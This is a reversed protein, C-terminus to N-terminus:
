APRADAGIRGASRAAPLAALLSAGFTLALTTALIPLPTDFPIARGFAESGAVDLAVFAGTIGVVAGIVCGVAALLAAEYVVMAGVFGRSAGVFRLIGFQARRELVLTALLACIGAIAIALALNGLLRAISFSRELVGLTSERLEATTRVDLVFTSLARAIRERVETASVGPKARVVITDPRADHFWAATRAYRVTATGGNNAFDDPVGAVRLAVPGSPTAITFRDGVKVHLRRALPSSVFAPTERADPAASPAAIPANTDDGRLEFKVRDASAVLFSRAPMATAVGAIARVRDLMPSPLATPATLGLDRAAVVVDGRMTQEAWLRTAHGFSSSAITYGLANAVALALAALVLGTRRPSAFLEHVALVAAQARSGVAVRVGNAFRQALARYWLPPLADNRGPGLASAPAVRMAEAAPFAASLMALVCGVAFAFAIAAVEASAFALVAAQPANPALAGIATQAGVIGFIAGIGSGFSGYFVGECLFARFIAGRTAGLGRMMAIESRRQAVSASVANYTFLAALALTVIALWDLSRQLGLLLHALGGANDRPPGVFTGAPLLAAIRASTAAVDNPVTCDIRELYGDDAFLTQAISLDVFATASDVGAVGSPLIYSVRLLRRQGDVYIPFAAGVSLRNARALRNSLIAGGAFVVSPDLNGGHPAYPGALVIGTGSTGPIPQLLDIGIVRVTEGGLVADGAVVARADAVGAVDRIRPFLREDVGRGSATIQLDAHRDLEDGSALLGTTAAIGTLHTAVALATAFALAGLAVLARLPDTRIGGIVLVDFLVGLTGRGSTVRTEHM